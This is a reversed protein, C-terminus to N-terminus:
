QIFSDEQDLNVEALQNQLHVVAVATTMAEALQLEIPNQIAVEEQHVQRLLQQRQQHQALILVVQLAKAAAEGVPQSLVIEEILILRLHQQQNVIIVVMQLVKTTGEIINILVQVETVMVQVDALAQEM